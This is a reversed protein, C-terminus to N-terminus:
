GQGVAQAQGVCGHQGVQDLPEDQQIDSWGKPDKKQSAKQKIENDEMNDNGKGKSKGKTGHKQKEQDHDKAQNKKTVEKGGEANGIYASSGKIINNTVM